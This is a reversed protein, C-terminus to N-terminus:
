LAIFTTRGGCRDTTTTTGTASYLTSANCYMYEPATATLAYWQVGYVNDLHEWTVGTIYAMVTQEDSEPLHVKMFLKRVCRYAHRYVHTGITDVNTAALSSPLLALFRGLGVGGWGRQLQLVM